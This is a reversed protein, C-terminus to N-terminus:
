FSAVLFAHSFTLRRSVQFIYVWCSSADIGMDRLKYDGFNFMERILLRLKIRAHNEGLIAISFQFQLKLM